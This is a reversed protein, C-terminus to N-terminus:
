ATPQRIPRFPEQDGEAYAAITENVIWFVNNSYKRPMHRCLLPLVIYSSGFIGAIGNNRSSLIWVIHVATANASSFRISLKNLRWEHNVIHQQMKKNNNPLEGEKQRVNKSRFM